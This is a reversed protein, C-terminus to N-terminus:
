KAGRELKALIKERKAQTFIANEAKYPEHALRGNAKIIARAQILAYNKGVGYFTAESEVGNSFANVQWGKGYPAINTAVLIVRESTM